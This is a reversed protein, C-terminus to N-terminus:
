RGSRNRLHRIRNRVALIAVALGTLMAGSPEPIGGPQEGVVDIRFVPQQPLTFTQGDPFLDNQVWVQGPGQDAPAAFWLFGSDPETTSAVLWYSVGMALSAGGSFFGTLIEGSPCAAQPCVDDFRVSALEAAPEGGVDTTVTYVLGDNNAESIANAAVWLQDLEGSASSTFRAGVSTVGFGNVGVVFGTDLDYAFSPGFNDFAVTALVSGSQLTASLALSVLVGPKM